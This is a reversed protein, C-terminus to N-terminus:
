RATSATSVTAVTATPEPAPMPADATALMRPSMSARGRRGVSAATHTQSVPAHPLHGILPRGAVRPAAPSCACVGGVCGVVYTQPVVACLGGCAPGRGRGRADPGAGREEPAAADEQSVLCPPASRCCSAGSPTTGRHYRGGPYGLSRDSRLGPAAQQTPSLSFPGDTARRDTPRPGSM